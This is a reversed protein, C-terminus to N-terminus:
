EGYGGASLGTQGDALPASVAIQHDGHLISEQKIHIEGINAFVPADIAKRAGGAIRHKTSKKNVFYLGCPIM